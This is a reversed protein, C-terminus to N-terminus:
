SNPSSRTIRDTIWTSLAERDPQHLSLLLFSFLIFLLNRPIM